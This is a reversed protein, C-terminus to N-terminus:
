GDSLITVLQSQHDGSFDTWSVTSTVIFKSDSSSMIGLKISRRFRADVPEPVTVATLNCTTSNLNPKYYAVATVDTRYDWVMRESFIEPDDYWYYQQDAIIVQCNRSQIARVLELGEQAYKTAQIQNQAFQSNRLGIISTIAIATIIIVALGAAITVELLAQGRQRSWGPKAFSRARAQSASM